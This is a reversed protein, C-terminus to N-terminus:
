DKNSPEPSAERDILKGAGVMVSGWPPSPNAIRGIPSEAECGDGATSRRTRVRLVLCAHSNYLARGLVGGQRAERRKEDAGM